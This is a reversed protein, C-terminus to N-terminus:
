AQKSRQRKQRPFNWPEAEVSDVRLRGIEVRECANPVGSRTTIQSAQRVLAGGAVLTAKLFSRRDIDKNFTM